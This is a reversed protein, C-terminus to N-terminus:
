GTQDLPSFVSHSDIKSAKRHEIATTQIRTVEDINVPDPYVTLAEQALAVAEEESGAVVECSIQKVVEQTVETKVIFKPM